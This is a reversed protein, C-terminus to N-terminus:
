PNGHKNVGKHQTSKADRVAQRARSIAEHLRKGRYLLSARQVVEDLQKSQKYLSRSAIAWNSLGAKTEPGTTLKFSYTDHATILLDLRNSLALLAQEMLRVCASANKTRKRLGEQGERADIRELTKLVEITQKYITGFPSSVPASNGGPSSHSIGALLAYLEDVNSQLVELTNPDLPSDIKLHAPEEVVPEEVVPLSQEQPVRLEFFSQMSLTGMVNFVFRKSSTKLLQTQFVKEYEALTIPLGTQEFHQETQLLAQVVRKPHVEKLPSHSLVNNAFLIDQEWTPVYTNLAQRIAQEQAKQLAREGLLSTKPINLTVPTLNQPAMQAVRTTYTASAGYTTIIPFKPKSHPTRTGARLRVHEAKPAAKKKPVRKIKQGYVPSLAGCILLASLALTSIKQLKHQNM